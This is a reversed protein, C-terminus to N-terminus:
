NLFRNEEHCVWGSRFFSIVNQHYINNEGQFESIRDM